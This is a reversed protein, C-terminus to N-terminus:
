SDGDVDGGAGEVIEHVKRDITTQDLRDTGGDLLRLICKGLNEVAPLMVTDGKHRDAVRGLVGLLSSIDKEKDTQPTM